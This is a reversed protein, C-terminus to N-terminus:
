TISYEIKYVPGTAPRMADWQIGLKVESDKGFSLDGSVMVSALYLTIVVNKKETTDYGTFVVLGQNVAFSNASGTMSDSAAAYDAAVGSTMATFQQLDFNNVVAKLSVSRGTVLKGIAYDASQSNIESLEVAYSFTVADSFDSITVATGGTPTYVITKPVVQLMKKTPM